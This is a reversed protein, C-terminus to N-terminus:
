AAFEILRILCTIGHFVSSAANALLTLCTILAERFACSRRRSRIRKRRSAFGDWVIYWIQIYIVKFM